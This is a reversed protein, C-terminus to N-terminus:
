RMSRLPLITLSSPTPRRRTKFQAIANGTSAVACCFVLARILARMFGGNAPVDPASM